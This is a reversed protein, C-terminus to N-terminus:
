KFLNGIRITNKLQQKVHFYNKGSVDSVTRTLALALNLNPFLYRIISPISGAMFGTALKSAGHAIGAKVVNIMTLVTSIKLAVDMSLSIKTLINNFEKNKIALKESMDLIELAQKKTIKLESPNTDIEGCVDNDIYLNFTTFFRSLNIVFELDIAKNFENPVTSTLTYCGLLSDSILSSNYYKKHTTDKHMSPLGNIQDYTSKLLAYNHDFVEQNKVTTLTSILAKINDVFNSHAIPTIASIFSTQFICYKSYESIYEQTDKPLRGNSFSFKKNATIDLIVFDNESKKIFEKTNQIQKITGDYWQLVLATNNGITSALNKIGKIIKAIGDTLFGELAIVDKNVLDFSNGANGIGTNLADEYLHMLNIHEVTPVGIEQKIKISDYLSQLTDISRMLNDQLNEIAINNQIIDDSIEELAHIDYPLIVANNYNNNLKNKLM